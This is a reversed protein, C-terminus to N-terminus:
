LTVEQNLMKQYDLQYERIRVSDEVRLPQPAYTHCHDCIADVSEQHYMVEPHTNLYRLKLHKGAAECEKRLPEIRRGFEELAKLLRDISVLKKDSM